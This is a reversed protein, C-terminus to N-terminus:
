GRSETGSSHVTPAGCLSLIVTGLTLVAAIIIGAVANSLANVLDLLGNLRQSAPSYADFGWM